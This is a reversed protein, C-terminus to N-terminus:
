RVKSNLDELQKMAEVAEQKYRDKLKHYTDDSIGKARHKKEIEKLLSMLLVKKTKLLEESAAATEKIKPAQQKKAPRLLILLLLVILVIIIIYTWTPIAEITKTETITQAQPTKQLAVKLSGGSKLSSGTYIEKDDFTIKLSDIDNIIKKELNDTDKNLVYSIKITIIDGDIPSLSSIDISYTNDDILTYNYKTDSITVIIDSAGDQISFNFTATLELVNLSIIEVVSITDEGSTIDIDFDKIEQGVVCTASIILSSIVTILLIYTPKRM